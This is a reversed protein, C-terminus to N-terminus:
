VSLLHECDPSAPHCRQEINASLHYSVVANVYSGLAWCSVFFIFEAFLCAPIFLPFTETWQGAAKTVIVM